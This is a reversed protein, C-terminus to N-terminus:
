PAARRPGSRRGATRRTATRHRRRRRAPEGGFRRLVFGLAVLALPPTGLRTVLWGLPLALPGAIRGAAIESAVWMGVLHVLTRM